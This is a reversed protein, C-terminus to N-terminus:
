IAVTLPLPSLFTISAYILFWPLCSSISCSFSKSKHTLRGATEAAPYNVPLDSREGIVCYEAISITSIILTYDRDLFYQYYGKANQHLTEERNLLRIFFSTDLLVAESM